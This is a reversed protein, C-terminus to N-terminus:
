SIQSSKKNDACNESQEATDKNCVIYKINSSDSEDQIYHVELPKQCLIEPHEKWFKEQFFDSYFPLIAKKLKKCDGDAHIQKRLFTTGKRFMEPENNYNIGFESFLIENKHASLTGRLREQAQLCLILFLKLPPQQSTNFNM